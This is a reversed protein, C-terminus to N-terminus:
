GPQHSLVSNRFLVCQLSNYSRMVAGKQMSSVSFRYEERIANPRNKRFIWCINLAAGCLPALLNPWHKSVLSHIFFAPISSTNGMKRVARNPCFIRRLGCDGNHPTAKPLLAKSRMKFHVSLRQKKPCRSETHHQPKMIGRNQRLFAEAFSGGWRVLPM